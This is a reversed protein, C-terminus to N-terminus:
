EFVVVGHKVGYDINEGEMGRVTQSVNIGLCLLSLSLSYRLRAYREKMVKVGRYRQLQNMECSKSQVLDLTWFVM